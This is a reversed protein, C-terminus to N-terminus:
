LAEFLDPLGLPTFFLRVESCILSLWRATLALDDDVLFM